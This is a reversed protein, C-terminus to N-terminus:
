VLHASDCVHTIHVPTHVKFAMYLPYGSIESYKECKRGPKVSKNALRSDAKCDEILMRELTLAYDEVHCKDQYWPKPHIAERTVVTLVVLGDRGYGADKHCKFRGNIGGDLKWTSSDMHNFRKINKLKSVNTKGIYFKELQCKRKTQIKHVCEVLHEWLMQEAKHITPTYTDRTETIDILNDYAYGTKSGDCLEVFSCELKNNPMTPHISDLIWCLLKKSNVFSM